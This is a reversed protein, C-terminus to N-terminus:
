PFSLPMQATWRFVVFSDEPGGTAHEGEGTSKTCRSAIEKVDPLFGMDLMRDAEDLVM